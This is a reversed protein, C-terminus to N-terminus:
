RPVVVTKGRHWITVATIGHYYWPETLSTVHYESTVATIGCQYRPIKLNGNYYQPTVMTTSHYKKVLPSVLLLWSIIRNFNLFAYVEFYVEFYISSPQITYTIQGNTGRDHDTAAVLIVSTGGPANELLVFYM